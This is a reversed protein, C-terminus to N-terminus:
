DIVKDLYWEQYSDIETGCYECKENLVNISSGCNPCEILNAGDKLEKSKDVKKFRYTINSRRSNIKSNNYSVIRIDMNIEVYLVNNDVDKRFSNYDIIDFDVVDKVRDSYYYQRLAFNINNFFKTKEEENFNMDNWFLEQERNIREKIRRVRPLIILADLYYFVYFLIFSILVAGVLIKLVDFLYFTRSTNIIYLATIIFSIIFDIIYTTIIYKRSKITLDYFHKSGLEKNKYEMNYSTHCYPCSVQFESLKSKNGCNKCTFESDKPFVYSYIIRSDFLKEKKLILGNRYYDKELLIGYEINDEKSHDTNRELVKEGDKFKSKININFDKLRKEHREEVVM